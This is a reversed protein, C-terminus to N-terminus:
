RRWRRDVLGDLAELVSWVVAVAAALPFAVICCATIRASDFTWGTAGSLLGFCFVATYQGQKM